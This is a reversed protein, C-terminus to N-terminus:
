LAIEADGRNSIYHPIPLARLSINRPITEGYLAYESASVPWLCATDPAIRAYLTFDPGYMSHHAVQVINSKLVSPPCLKMLVDAARSMIDGLFLVTRGSPATMKLVLSADNVTTMDDSLAWEAQSYLVDFRLEGVRFHQGAYPKSVICGKKELEALTRRVAQNQALSAPDRAAHEKECPFNLYVAEPALGAAANLFVTVHDYHPHTLIWARIRHPTPGDDLRDLIASIGDGDTEIGGDILVFSGDRLRIVYTM